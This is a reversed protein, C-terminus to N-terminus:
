FGRPPECFDAIGAIPFRIDVEPRWPCRVYMTHKVYMCVFRVYVYFYVFDEKFFSRRASQTLIM